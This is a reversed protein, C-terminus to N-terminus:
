EPEPTPPDSLRTHKDSLMSERGATISGFATHRHPPKSSKEEFVGFKTLGGNEKIARRDAISKNLINDIASAFDTFRYDEAM